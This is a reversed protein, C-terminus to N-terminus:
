RRGSSSAAPAAVSRGSSAAPASRQYGGMAPASTSRSPARIVGGEMRPGGQPFGGASRHSLFVPASRMGQPGRNFVPANMRGIGMGRDARTVRYQGGLTNGLRAQMPVRSNRRFSSTNALSRQGMLVINPAPRSFNRARSVLGSSAPSAARQFSRATIGADARRSIMSERAALARAAGPAIVNSGVPRGSLMALSSPMVDPSAVRALHLSNVNLRTNRDIPMGNQLTGARVVTMCATGACAPGGGSGLPAWGVYGPGSYWTVLAPYWMNLNGPMWFYGFGPSYNWLGTHFPLWGWPEGSIWTYGLSPYFSWQGMSYPMWGAPAFPSWGYGYGPFYAWEGYEDLDSWGYMPSNIGIAQDNFALQAQQDRKKVWGDWADKEIGHTINFAAEAGAGTELTKNKGLKTPGSPGSVEVSGDFDEVRATGQSLDARFESKGHATMTAKGAQVTYVEDKAPLVHFTGYGQDLVLHSIRAGKETLALEQFSLESLQGIRATSGNEFEVEAYSNTGTSLLFGQEIPTNVPAKAWETSGPRKVLVTGDVFSLRVVRVHSLNKQEKQQSGFGSGLALLAVVATVAVSRLACKM